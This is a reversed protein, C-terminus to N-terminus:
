PVRLCGVARGKDAAYRGVHAQLRREMQLPRLVIYVLQPRDIAAALRRLEGRISFAVLSPKSGPEPNEREFTLFKARPKPFAGRKSKGSSSCRQRPLAGAPPM